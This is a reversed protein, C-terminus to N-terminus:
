NQENNFTLECLLRGALKRVGLKDLYSV